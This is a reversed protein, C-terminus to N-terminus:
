GFESRSKGATETHLTLWAESVAMRFSRLSDHTFFLLKTSKFSLLITLWRTLSMKDFVKRM